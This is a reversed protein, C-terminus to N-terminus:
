TTKTIQYKMFTFNKMKNLKKIFNLCLDKLLIYIDIVSAYITFSLLLNKGMFAM